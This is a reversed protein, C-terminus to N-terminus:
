FLLKQSLKVWFLIEFVNDKLPRFIDVGTVIALKRLCDGRTAPSIPLYNTTSLALYRDYYTNLYHLIRCMKMEIETIEPMSNVKEEMENLDQYAMLLNSSNNAKLYEKFTNFYTKDGMIKDMIKLLAQRDPSNFMSNRRRTVNNLVATVAQRGSDVYSIPNKELYMEYSPLVEANLFDFAEIMAVEYLTNDIEQHIVNGGSVLLLFCILGNLSQFTLNYIFIM